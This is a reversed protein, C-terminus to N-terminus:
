PGDFKGISGHERDPLTSLRATNIDGLDLALDAEAGRDPELIREFDSHIASQDDVILIRLNPRDGIEETM